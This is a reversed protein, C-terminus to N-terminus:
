AEKLVMYFDMVNTGTVGSDILDGSASLFSHSNAHRICSEIDLGQASGRRVTQGDILAGAAPSPGDSGDSGIILAHYPTHQWAKALLLALHQNRGGQGPNDPLKLTVEGGFLFLGQHGRTVIDDITHLAKHIDEVLLKPHRYTIYGQNTAKTQMLDLADDISAVVHSKACYGEKALLGSGIFQSQGSPIDSILLQYVKRQGLFQCLGGGKILSYRMRAENISEIRMSQSLYNQNLTIIQQLNWGPKLVEVLSSSGGSILFLFSESPAAQNIFDLLAQGAQLSAEGPIPHCSEILHWPGPEGYGQKTIVLAEKIQQGLARYAGQAMSCAAKGIAVLRGNFDFEQQKLYAYVANSGEVRKIASQYLNLLFRRADIAM